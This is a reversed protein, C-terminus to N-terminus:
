AGESPARSGDSLCLCSAASFYHWFWCGGGRRIEAVEHMRQKRRNIVLRWTSHPMVYASEGPSLPDFDNIELLSPKSKGGGFALRSDILNSNGEQEM